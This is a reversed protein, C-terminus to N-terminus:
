VTYEGLGKTGTIRRFGAQHLECFAGLLRHIELM